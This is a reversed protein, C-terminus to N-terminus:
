RAGESPGSPASPLPAASPEPKRKMRVAEKHWHRYRLLCGVGLAFPIAGALMGVAVETGTPHAGDPKRDSTVPIAMGIGLMMLVVASLGWVFRAMGYKMM